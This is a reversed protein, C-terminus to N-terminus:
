QQGQLQRVAQDEADQEANTGSMHHDAPDTGPLYTHGTRLEPPVLDIVPMKVPGKNPDDQNVWNMIQRETGRVGETELEAKRKDSTRFADPIAQVSRVIGGAAANNIALIKGLTGGGAAADGAAADDTVQDMRTRPTGDDRYGFKAQGNEDVAYEPNDTVNKAYATGAKFGAAGATALPIAEGAAAGVCTAGLGDAAIKTGTLVATTGDLTAQTAGNYDNHALARQQENAADRVAVPATIADVAGLEVEKGLLKAGKEVCSKGTDLADATKTIADKHEGGGGVYPAAGQATTGNATSPIAAGAPAVSQPLPELGAPLSPQVQNPDVCQQQQQQEDM